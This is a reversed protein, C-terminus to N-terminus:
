LFWFIVSVKDDSLLFYIQQCEVRGRKKRKRKKRKKEEKLIKKKVGKKRM